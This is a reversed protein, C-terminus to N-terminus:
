GAAAKKRLPSGPFIAFKIGRAGLYVGPGRSKCGINGLLGALLARHIPMTTPRSRTRIGAWRRCWRTCSATCTAGSACACTRCSISAAPRRSSATPSRTSSRRTSSRGCSSCALFESREDHFQAHAADALEQRELPRERPDQMALGSAIILMESLCGEDRAAVIMRAMRPDLPLKALQSGIPTLRRQEDVANLEGLLQYGDAIARASPPELFPFDEVEGLKLAKM